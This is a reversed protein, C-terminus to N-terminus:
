KSLLRILQQDSLVSFRKNNVRNLIVKPSFSLAAVIVKIYGPHWLTRKFLFRVHSLILEADTINQWTFLLENREKILSVFNKNLKKFTSEHQHDVTAKPDWIIKYGRKWARWGFDIDEWYGPSYIENYGGLKDWLSKRIISSGGSPWACSKAKTLDEGESFQLKGESWSVKPWSHEKESFTVAIVKPDSFNKLASKLYGQGPSVDNNLLVVFETDCNSIAANTNKTFGLNKKNRQFIVKPYNAAIWNPTDDDGADDYVFIQKAEPSNKKVDSLHKELLHRGNYSTIVISITNM